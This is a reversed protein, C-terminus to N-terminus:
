VEERAGGGISQAEFGEEVGLGLVEVQFQRQATMDHDGALM